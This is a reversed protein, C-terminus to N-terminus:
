SKDVKASLKIFSNGDSLRLVSTFIQIVSDKEMALFKM